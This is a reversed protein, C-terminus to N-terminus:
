CCCISSVFSKKSLEVRGSYYYNNLERIAYYDKEDLMYQEGNILVFQHMFILEAITHLQTSYKGVILEYRITSRQYVLEPLNDNNNYVIREKQELPLRNIYGKIYLHNIMILGPYDIGNFKCLSAWELKILKEKCPIKNYEEFLNTIISNGCTDFIKLRFCHQGTGGDDIGEQIDLQILAISDKYEVSSLGNQDSDFIWILNGNNDQLEVKEIECIEDFIISNISLNDSTNQPTFEYRLKYVSLTTSTFYNTYSSGSYGFNLTPLNQYVLDIFSADELETLVSFQGIMMYNTIMKYRTDDDLNIDMDLDMNTSITSDLPYYNISESIPHFYGNILKIGSIATAGITSIATLISHSTNDLYSGAPINQITIEYPLSGNTITSTTGHLIDITNQLVYEIRGILSAQSIHTGLLDIAMHINILTTYGNIIVADFFPTSSVVEVFRFIYVKNQIYLTFYSNYAIQSSIWNFTFSLNNSTVPSFPNTDFDITHKNVIDLGVQIYNPISTDITFVDCMSCGDPNLSNFQQGTMLNM